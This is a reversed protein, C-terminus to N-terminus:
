SASSSRADVLTSYSAREAAFAQSLIRAPVRPTFPCGDMSVEISYRVSPLVPSL